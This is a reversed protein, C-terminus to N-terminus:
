LIILGYGIEVELAEVQTYDMYNEPEKPKVESIDAEAAAMILNNKDAEDKHLLYAAIGCGVALLLFPATPLGPVIAFILIVVAAITMVKPFAFLQTGLDTGFNEDSASRTVLIGAAVSILLSPIQSVLGDGITLLAFQSLAEM